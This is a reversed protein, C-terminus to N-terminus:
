IDGSRKLLNRFFGRRQYRHAPAPKEPQCALYERQASNPGYQYFRTNEATVSCRGAFVEAKGAVVAEVRCADGAKHDRCFRDAPLTAPADCTIHSRALLSAVQEDDRMRCFEPSAVFEASAPLGRDVQLSQVLRCSLEIRRLSPNAERRCKGPGGGEFANGPLVCADGPRKDACYQDVRDVAESRRLRDQLAEEEPSIVDAHAVLHMGASLMLVCLLPLRMKRKM